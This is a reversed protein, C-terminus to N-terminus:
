QCNALIADMHVESSPTVSIISLTPDQFQTHYFANM